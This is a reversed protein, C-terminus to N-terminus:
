KENIKGYRKWLWEKIPLILTDIDGAGITLIIDFCKKKVKELVKSMISIEKSSMKIKKLLNSSNIGNIPFERAPYIDLLILTDLRELSKAFSEEFFKTRSFLHPQFIGLIKKNPFCERVTDILANIETPHHAYDDIYIKQSSQYHISYRRKIGKFLFLAKRIEEEPIKLYDSIALAATINKLNHQGPIPLPLSKWTKIPTHFDFYWKNEKMYLHNSYYNEKKLVSYYIAHDSQFSEEQCLFIKKYPKKIKKAFTIYAKKLSEKKPYTDVHDQDLSTICAINPSLYLFSHDFEDAEVLFIKKRNLIRNLILNSQYNESIGGLFATVNMGVSYLIHGLLTCTTTKGHTGGIAICIANETILSLVQSRKKINKGYKRLYMWQKHHSPIASTYVILCQKSLVWKPLTKINDYYNISIGEKELEKTLFTKNKDHGSVTKGMTHFYRALSSMGIGGIGIFYFSDIQNLNM